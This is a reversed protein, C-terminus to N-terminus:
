LGPTLWEIQHTTPEIGKLRIWDLAEKKATETEGQLFVKIQLPGTYTFCFSAEDPPTFPLLPYQETQQEDIKRRLGPDGQGSMTTFSWSAILQKSPQDTVEAEYTTNYHLLENPKVLMERKNDALSTQFSFSPKARFSLDNLEVLQNFSIKIQPSLSVGTEGASPSVSTVAPIKRQRTKWFSFILLIAVIAALGIIIKKTM